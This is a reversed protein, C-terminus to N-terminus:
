TPPDKPPQQKFLRGVFGTVVFFLVGRMVWHPPIMAQYKAPMVLWATAISGNAAYCWTSIWRPWSRWNDVLKM